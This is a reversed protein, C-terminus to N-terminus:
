FDLKIIDDIILLFFLFLYFYLFPKGEISLTVHKEKGAFFPIFLSILL